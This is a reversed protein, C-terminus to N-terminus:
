GVDLRQSLQVGIYAECQEDTVEHRIEIRIPFIIAADHNHFHSCSSQLNAAGFVITKWISPEQAKVHHLPLPRQLELAAPPELIPCTQSPIHWSDYGRTLLAIWIATIGERVAVM